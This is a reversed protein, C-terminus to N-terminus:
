RRGTGAPPQAGPNTHEIGAKIRATLQLHLRALHQEEADPEAGDVTLVSHLQTSHSDGYALLRGRYVALAGGRVHRGLEWSLERGQASAQLSLADGPAAWDLDAAAAPADPDHRSQHHGGSAHGDLSDVASNLLYRCTHLVPAEVMVHLESRMM